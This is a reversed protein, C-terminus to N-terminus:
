NMFNCFATNGGGMFGGGMFGGGGFGPVCTMGDPCSDADASCSLMCMGGFGCSPEASGSAPASTCDPDDMCMQTCYGNGGGFATCGLGDACDGDMSCAEFANAMGANPDPDTPNVQEEYGCRFTGAVGGDGAGGGPFGGMFGGGASICMLGTPCSTDDAGDCLARCVGDPQVPGADAQGGGGPFGGRPGGGGGMMFGGAGSCGYNSGLAACDADEACPESCYRGFEYCNLGGMCDEDAECYSLMGGNDPPM